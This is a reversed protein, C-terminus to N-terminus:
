ALTGMDSASPQRTGRDSSTAPLTTNVSSPSKRMQRRCRRCFIGSSIGGPRYAEDLCPRAATRGWDGASARGVAEGEFVLQTMKEKGKREVIILKSTM